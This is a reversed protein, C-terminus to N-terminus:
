FISRGQIASDKMHRAFSNEQSNKVLVHVNGRSGARGTRGARHLFNLPSLPMDYLIVDRVNSTDLGRSSIDTTVLIQQTDSARNELFGLVAKERDKSDQTFEVINKIGRGRLWAALTAVSASKNVFIIVQRRSESQGHSIDNLCSLCASNASGGYHKDVSLIEISIRRPLSHLKPSSIQRINPYSKQLFKLLSDPYTASCFIVAKLCTCAEIVRLTLQRFSKDFLTDAEDVCLYSAQSIHERNDAELAVHPTAVIINVRRTLPPSHKTIKSSSLKISHSLAKTVATVQAALESTPVLIVLSEHRRQETDVNREQEKLLQMLPLLYALTKGSGTEAALLIDQRQVSSPVVNKLVAPITSLQIPTPKANAISQFPETELLADVMYNTLGLDQFTCVESAKSPLAVRRGKPSKQYPLAPSPRHSVRGNGSPLTRKTATKTLFRNFNLPGLRLITLSKPKIM